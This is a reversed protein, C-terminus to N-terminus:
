TDEKYEWQGYNYVEDSFFFFNAELHPSNLKKIEFVSNM